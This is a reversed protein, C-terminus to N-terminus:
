NERGRAPLTLSLPEKPKGPVIVPVQADAQEQAFWKPGEIMLYTWHGGVLVSDDEQSKHDPVWVKRVVPGQMVPIYPKVYGFTKQEKLGREIFKATDRQADGSSQAYIDKMLLPRDQKTQAYVCGNVFVPLVLMILAYYAM